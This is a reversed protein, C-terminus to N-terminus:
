FIASSLKKKKETEEANINKFMESSGGNPKTKMEVTIPHNATPKHAFNILLYVVNISWLSM